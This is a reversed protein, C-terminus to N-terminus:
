PDPLVRIPFTLVLNNTTLNMDDSPAGFSEPPALQKDPESEFFVIAESRRVSVVSSWMFICPLCGVVVPLLRISMSPRGLANM